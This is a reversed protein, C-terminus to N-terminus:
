PVCVPCAWSSLVRIPRTRYPNSREPDNPDTQEFAHAGGCPCREGRAIYGAAIAAAKVAAYTVGCWIHGPTMRVDRGPEHEAPVFYHTIKADSPAQIVAFEIKAATVRPANEPIYTM